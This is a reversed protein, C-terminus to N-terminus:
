ALLTAAVGLIPILAAVTFAIGDPIPAATRPPKPTLYMTAILVSGATALWLETWIFGGRGLQEGITLVAYLLLGYTLFRGSRRGSAPALARGILM